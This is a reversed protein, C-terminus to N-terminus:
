EEKWSKRNNSYTELCMLMELESLNQHITVVFEGERQRDDKDLGERIRLWRWYFEHKVLKIADSLAQDM